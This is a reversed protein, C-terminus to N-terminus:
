RRSNEPDDVICRPTLNRTVRARLAYSDDSKRILLDEPLGSASGTLWPGSQWLGQVVRGVSRALMDAGVRTLSKKWTLLPLM